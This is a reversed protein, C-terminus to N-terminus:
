WVQTYFWYRATTQNIHTSDNSQPRSLSSQYLRWHWLIDQLLLSLTSLSSHKTLLIFYELLMWFCISPRKAVWEMVHWSTRLSLWVAIYKTWCPTRGSQHPKEWGGAWTQVTNLQKRIQLM